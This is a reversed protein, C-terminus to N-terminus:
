GVAKVGARLFALGLLLITDILPRVQEETILGLAYLGVIAVGAGVALYTKYGKIAEM